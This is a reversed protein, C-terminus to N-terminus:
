PLPNTRGAFDKGLVSVVRQDRTESPCKKPGDERRDKCEERRRNNGGKKFPHDEGGKMLAPRWNESLFVILPSRAVSFSKKPSVVERGVYTALLPNV